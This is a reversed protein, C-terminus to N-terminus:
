TTVNANAKDGDNAVEVLANSCCCAAIDKAVAITQFETNANIKQANRECGSL